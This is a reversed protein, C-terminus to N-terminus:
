KLLLLCTLNILAHYSQPHFLPLSGLNIVYEYPASTIIFRMLTHHLLRLSLAAITVRTLDLNPAIVKWVKLLCCDTPLLITCARNRQSSKSM